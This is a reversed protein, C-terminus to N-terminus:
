LYEVKNRGNAKAAYLARDARKITLDVDEGKKYNTVGFSATQQEGLTFPFSAINKRLNEAFAMIGDKNTESCVILFEEGGWRGATDTSRSHTNLIGAFEKLVDDGIHHGHIDNVSKFNDVDIMVVGFDSSFRNARSSETMLVEDLRYRNYLKTLSDTVAFEKLLINKEAIEKHSIELQKNIKNISRNKYFVISFIILFFLIIYILKRRDFSQEIKITIWKGVISRIKEEGIDDLSKQMISQLLPDAKSTAISLEIDFELRGAIKLDLMGNKQITYAISPLADVYGFLENNQVKRLGEEASKVPVVEVGPNYKKLMDSFAYENVVGLKHSSLEQSDQIFFKDETTAVVISENIYPNTFNMTSQRSRTNVAMPLIDCENSIIKELTQSWTQTPILVVQKDIRKSIIQMIEAGIGVYEGNENIREFPMWNPDVCMKIAQKSSLYSAEATSLSTLNVDVLPLSSETKKTEIDLWKNQLERKDVTSISMVGKRLISALIPLDKRTAINLLSYEPDGMIAEGSIALGSMLHKTLLHNFVALEGLAADAKGFTVAKIAELMNKVTLLRIEPYHKRLIEETFFGKPLSVTKGFLSEITEYPKDRKSLIANPNDAYPPTYLLYELREPTKVINLMIDLTGEKMMELFENWTPGSIYDVKFGTKKAILNMYDISFGLPTGNNAYNYPPWDTENHVRLVPHSKLFNQEELSLKIEKVEPKKSFWKQQLGKREEISISDVGKRLISALIPLNKRTAINLLSYEPNGMKAEGSISLDTMMHENLLHNFVALEGLAADANGFAVAKMAELMNKVTLLKIEPYKKRLIEETFFGKPIAVTKGFLSDISKFPTDKKSLIANPNDAYPTTYLLYKLREPTKVINLMVDLSGEKIMALFGNWTPGTVYEVKFGGKEAILNMYDISYGQPKGKKSYNFPPWDTENHVRIIPHSKLFDKEKNSLLSTLSNKIKNNEILNIESAHSLQVFSLAFCLLFLKIIYSM